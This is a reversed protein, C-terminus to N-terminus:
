KLLPLLLVHISMSDICTYIAKTCRSGTSFVKQKTKLKRSIKADDCRVHGHVHIHRRSSRECQRDAMISGYREDDDSSETTSGVAM